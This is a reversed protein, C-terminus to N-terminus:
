GQLSWIKQLARWILVGWFGFLAFFPVRFFRFFL